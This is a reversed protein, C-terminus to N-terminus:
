SKGEQRAMERQIESESISTGKYFAWSRATLYLVWAMFPYITWLNWVDHIGSGQSFGNSPWGGANSYEATGWIVTVLLMVIASMILEIHFQRRRQIQKIAQERAVEGGSQPSGSNPPAVPSSPPSPILTPNM